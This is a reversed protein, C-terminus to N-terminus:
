MVVASSTSIRCNGRKQKRVRSSNAKMNDDVLRILVEVRGGCCQGIEPGLPIDLMLERLGKVDALMQRAQDIAM